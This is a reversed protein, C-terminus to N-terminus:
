TELKSLELIYIAFAPTLAHFEASAPRGDRRANEDPDAHQQRKDDGAAAAGDIVARTKRVIGHGTHMLNGAVGEIRGAHCSGCARDASALDGPFAILGDHAAAQTAAAADGAHCSSCNEAAFAHARSFGRQEAAHCQACGNVSTDAAAGDAAGALPALAFLTLVFRHLM